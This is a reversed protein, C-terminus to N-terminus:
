RFAEIFGRGGAGDQCLRRAAAVRDPVASRHVQGDGLPRLGNRHRVHAPLLLVVRDLGDLGGPQFGHHRGFGDEVTRHWLAGHHRLVRAEPLRVLPPVTVSVMELPGLSTWTGLKM